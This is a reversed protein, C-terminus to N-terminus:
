VPLQDAGITANEQDILAKEAEATKEDVDQYRMIAKIHSIFGNDKATALEVVEQGKDIPFVEDWMVTLEPVLAVGWMKALEHMKLFGETMKDRVRQIKKLFPSIRINKSQAAEVGGATKINFFEVPISLITGIQLLLTEITKFSQEILPNTNSVFAPLTDGAEMQIIELRRIDVM